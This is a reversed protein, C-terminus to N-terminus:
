NVEKLEGEIVSPFLALIECPTINEQQRAKTLLGGLKNLLQYKFAIYENFHQSVNHKKSPIKTM